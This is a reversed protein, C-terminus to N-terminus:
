IANIDIDGGETLKATFAAARGTRTGLVRTVDEKGETEEQLLESRDFFDSDDELVGGAAKVNAFLARSINTKRLMASQKEDFLGIIDATGGVEHTASVGTEDDSDSEIAERTSVVVIHDVDIFVQGRKRLLGRIRCQRTIGDHCLVEMRGHGFRRVVRGAFMYLSAEKDEPSLGDKGFREMKRYLDIMDDSAERAAKARFGEAGTKFKKFNKGGTTNRPM